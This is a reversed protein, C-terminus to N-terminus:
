WAMHSAGGVTRAMAPKSQFPPAACRKAQRDVRGLRTAGDIGQSQKTIPLAAVNTDIVAKVGRRDGNLDPVARTVEAAGAAAEVDAVGYARGELAEITCAFRVGARRGRIARAVAREHAESWDSEEEGTIGGVARRHSPAAERSGPRRACTSDSSSRGRNSRARSRRRDWGYRSPEVGANPLRAILGSSRTRYAPVTPPTNARFM